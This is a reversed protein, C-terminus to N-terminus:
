EVRPWERYAAEMSLKIYRQSRADPKLTNPHLLFIYRVIYTDAEFQLRTTISNSPPGAAELGLLVGYEFLPHRVAKLAERAGKKFAYRWSVGPKGATWIKETLFGDQLISHVTNIATGHWRVSTQGGHRIVAADFQDRIRTPPNIVAFQWVDDPFGSVKLSDPPPFFNQGFTSQMWKTLRFVPEPHDQQFYSMLAESTLLKCEPLGRIFRKLAQVDSTSCNESVKLLQRRHDIQHYFSMLLLYLGRHNIECITTIEKGWELALEQGEGSNTKDLKDAKINGGLDLKDKMNQTDTEFPTALSRLQHRLTNAEVKVRPLTPDEMGEHKDM